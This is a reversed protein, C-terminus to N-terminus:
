LKLKLMETGAMLYAGTGYEQNDDQKVADPSAGIQQVWQLKGEDTIASNLAGWGNKVIPLYDDRNLLHQNIGWALAFTFFGTGSTEKVPVQGPDLLSARWFGDPQQLGAIKAAMTKYLEVYKNYSADTKPLREIVQALGALVWGNGRSWFVKKGSPTKKNFYSQDRFYLAENKDFLYDTADWWMQDLYTLYKGDGTQKAMRALLPPEMFLADCWWWDVRGPKSTTILSDIRNKVPELMKADKKIAYLDLFVQGRALDDAHRPRKGPKWNVSDAYKIAADLYVHNHVASYARTAGIYLVARAWDESLNGRVPHQLQWAFVKQMTQRINKKDYIDNKKFSLACLGAIIIVGALKTIKSSAM